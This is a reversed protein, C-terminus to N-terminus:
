AYKTYAKLGAYVIGALIGLILAVKFLSVAASFLLGLVQFLVVVAIVGVVGLVAYGVVPNESLFSKVTDTNM